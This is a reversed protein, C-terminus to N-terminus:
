SLAWMAPRRNWSRGSIRWAWFAKGVAFFFPSQSAWKKNLVSSLSGFLADYTSSKVPSEGRACPAVPGQP